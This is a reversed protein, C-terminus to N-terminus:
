AICTQAFLRLADLHTADSFHIVLEQVGAVEYAALRERITGYKISM